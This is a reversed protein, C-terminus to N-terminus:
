HSGHQVENISPHSPLSKRSSNRSADETQPIAILHRNIQDAPVVMHKALPNAFFAFWLGYLIAVKVAIVLTMELAFRSPKLRRRQLFSAISRAGTRQRPGASHEPPKNKATAPAVSQLADM